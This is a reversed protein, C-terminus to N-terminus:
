QKDSHLQSVLGELRTVRQELGKDYAEAQASCSRADRPVRASRDQQSPCFIVSCLWFLRQLILPQCPASCSLDFCPAAAIGVLPGSRRPPMLGGFARRSLPQSVAVRYLMLTAVSLTCHLPKLHTLLVASGM